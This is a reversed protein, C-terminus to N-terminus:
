PLRLCPIFIKAGLEISAGTVNEPHNPGFVKTTFASVMLRLTNPYPPNLCLWLWLKPRDNQGTQPPSVQNAERKAPM